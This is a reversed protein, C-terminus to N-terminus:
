VCGPVDMVDQLIFGLIWARLGHVNSCVRGQIGGM